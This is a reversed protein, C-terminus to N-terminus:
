EGGKTDRSGGRNSRRNLILFDPNGRVAIRDESWLNGSDDIPACISLPPELHPDLLLEAIGRADTKTVVWTDLDQLACVEVGIAPTGEPTRVLVLCKRGYELRITVIRGDPFVNVCMQSLLSGRLGPPPEAILDGAVAVLGDVLVQGDPGTREWACDYTDPYNFRVRADVLPNGDPDEVRVTLCSNCSAIEMQLILNRDHSRVGDLRARQARPRVDNPLGLRGQDMSTANWTLSVITGLPVPIEFTGQSGTVAHSVPRTGERAWIDLGSPAARGDPLLLTGSATEAAPLQIRLETAGAPVPVPPPMALTSNEGDAPDILTITRPFPNSRFLVLGRADTRGHNFYPVGDPQKPVPIRGDTTRDPYIEAIPGCWARPGADFTDTAVELGSVPSDLHDVVTVSLTAMSPVRLEVAVPDLDAVVRVLEEVRAGRIKATLRYTGPPVPEIRFHGAADATVVGAGPMRLADADLQWAQVEAKDRNPTGDADVVSGEISCRASSLAPAELRDVISECIISIAPMAASGVEAFPPSTAKLSNPSQRPALLLGVLVLLLMAVVLRPSTM